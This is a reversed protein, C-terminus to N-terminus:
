SLLKEKLIQLVFKPLIMQRKLRRPERILRYLWELGADQFFIPARPIKAAIVDLSGGVGMCIKAKLHEKYRYIWKEQKPSGLGVFLLDTKLANIKEVLAKHDEDPIYGHQAGVLCLSPYRKLIESSVRSNVEPTSGFVFVRYKKKAALDLLGKMIGIGTTRSTKEGYILWLGITVGIGDPILFDAEKLASFLEQDRQARM